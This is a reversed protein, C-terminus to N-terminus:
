SLGLLRKINGNAIKEATSPALQALVSRYEEVVQDIVQYRNEPGLDLGFLFRDPFEEFVERWGEKLMGDESTLSQEEIPVGRECVSNRTSIDAYLNPHARMMEVALSPPGDGVHAWVIVTSRNHELARELEESFEHEVHVNVPVNFEAALDYIQLAIPGDAPYNDGEPPSFAFPRHRLSLEGIGYVGGLDLQQRLLGVTEENLVVQGSNRDRRVGAFPFVFDPYSRQAERLVMPPGILVVGSIGADSM